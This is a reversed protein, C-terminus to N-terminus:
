RPAGGARGPDNALLIEATRRLQFRASEVSGAVPAEIVYIAGGAPRRKLLALVQLYKAKVSGAAVRGDVAYWYWVISEYGRRELSIEAVQVVPKSEALVIIKKAARRM